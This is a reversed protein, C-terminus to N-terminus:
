QLDEGTFESYEDISESRSVGPVSTMDGYAAHRNSCGADEDVSVDGSSMSETVSRRLVICVHVDCVPHGFVRDKCHKTM